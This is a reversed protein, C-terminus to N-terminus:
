DGEIEEEVPFWLRGDGGAYGRRDKKEKKRGKSGSVVIPGHGRNVSQSISQVSWCFSVVCRLCRGNLGGGGELGYM